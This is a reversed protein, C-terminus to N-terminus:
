CKHCCAAKGMTSATMAPSDSAQASKGLCPQVRGLCGGGEQGGQDQWSALRAEALLGIHM